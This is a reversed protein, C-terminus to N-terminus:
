QILVQEFTTQGNLYPSIGPFGGGIDLLTPEYGAEELIEFARKSLQIALAHGRPDNVPSGVHFSMGVVNLHLSQAVAALEPLKEIPVGFKRGLYVLAKVPPPLIRIM